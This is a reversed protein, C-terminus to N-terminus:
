KKEEGDEPGDGADGMMQRYKQLREDVHQKRKPDGNVHAAQAQQFARVVEPALQYSAPPPKDLVKIATVPHIEWCTARVNHAGGPNTNEAQDVHEFDFLMWGTIEVWKGQIDRQLAETTWDNGGAKQHVIRGRPTVEAIIGQTRDAGESLTLIIHTDRGEPQKDRCNCTEVSGEYARLVYGTITAASRNDFHGEDEGPAVMATLTVAQDIDSTAPAQYRNKYRNLQKVDPVKASGELPCPQGDLTIVDLNGADQGLLVFPLLLVVAVAKM